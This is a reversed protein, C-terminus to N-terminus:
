VDDGEEAIPQHWCCRYIGAQEKSGEEAYFCIVEWGKRYTVEGCNEGSEDAWQLTFDCQPFRSALCAIIPVPSSNLSQFTFSGDDEHYVANIANGKTGWCKIKEEVTQMFRVIPRVRNFDFLAKESQVFRRVAAVDDEAGDIRLVKQVYIAM